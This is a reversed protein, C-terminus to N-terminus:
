KKMRVKMIINKEKRLSQSIESDAVCSLYSMEPVSETYFDLKATSYM